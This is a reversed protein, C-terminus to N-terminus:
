KAAYEVALEVAQQKLNARAGFWAATMRTDDTRGMEHDVAYTVGNVAGWWTGRASPLDAGPSELIADLIMKGARNLDTSRIGKATQTSEAAALVADLASGGNVAADEDVISDLIKSGSLTAVYEVLAQENRVRSESLFQAKEEFEHLRTKALGLATKAQEQMDANFRNAHSMRFSAAGGGNLAMTLTNNCVVRISTFKITFAEGQKHPSCLLLYGNVADGGALTFGDQIAALGWIRRGGDLSGATEMKMDGAQVFETFFSLAEENQVPQYLRGVVDLVKGDSERRLAFRDPVVDYASGEFGTVFIPYKAVLWDLGAKTMIEQPTLDNSVEVGLKHWPKAGTYAMTEVM